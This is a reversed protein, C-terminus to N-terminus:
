NGFYNEYSYRTGNCEPSPRLYDYVQHDLREMEESTLNFYSHYEAVNNYGGVPDDFTIDCAYWQGDLEVANWQHAGGATGEILTCNIGVYLCLLQFAKSYSVCVGTKNVLIGYATWNDEALGDWDAFLNYHSDILIRDYILKEKVVAPADAPITSLIRQLEKQFIAQKERIGTRLAETINGYGFGSYNTGDSYGLILGEGYSYRFIGVRNILYFHEPNDMMYLYYLYEYDIQTRNESLVVRDELNRVAVDLKQYWIKEEENLISYLYRQTYSLPTHSQGTTYTYEPKTPETPVPETPAPETPAPETPAPETPAPETPAPETPAPETPAPETPAPETPAPETPAPETPAPETPAPETPVPETPAPETPVPETPAPETSAPETPAPETPAPETPAPETPAPETPNLEVITNGEEDTTEVIDYNEDLMDKFEEFNSVLHEPKTAVTETPSQNPREQAEPKAGCAALQLAFAMCLVIALTKKM